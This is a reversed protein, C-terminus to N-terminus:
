LPEDGVMGFNVPEGSPVARGHTQDNLCIGLAMQIATILEDGESVKFPLSGSSDSRELAMVSRRFFRIVFPTNTIHPPIKDLGVMSLAIGVLETARDVEAPSMNLQHGGESRKIIVSGQHSSPVFNAEDAM